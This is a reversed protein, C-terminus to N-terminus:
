RVRRERAQRVAEPTLAVSDRHIMAHCNPCVPILDSKPDVVRRGRSAVPEIHHVHIFGAGIEGYENEFDFGCLLCAHGHIALCARRAARNREHVSAVVRKLAGDMLAPGEDGAYDERVYSPQPLNRGVLRALEHVVEQDHGDMVGKGARRRAAKEMASRLAPQLKGAVSEIDVRAEDLPITVEVSGPVSRYFGEGDASTTVGVGRPLRPLGATADVILRLADGHLTLMETWGVSLRLFDGRDSLGWRDAGIEAALEIARAMAVCVPQQQRPPVETFLTAM